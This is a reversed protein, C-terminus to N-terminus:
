VVLSLWNDAAPLVLRAAPLLAPVPNAPELPVVSKEFEIFYGVEFLFETKPLWNKNELKYRYSAVRRGVGTVRVCAISHLRSHIAGNAPLLKLAVVSSSTL